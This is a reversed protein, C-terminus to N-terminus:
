GFRAAIATGYADADSGSNNGASDHATGDRVGVARSVHYLGAVHGIWGIGGSRGNAARATVPCASGHRIISISTGDGPAPRTEETWLRADLVGIMGPSSIPNAPCKIKRAYCVCLCWPSQLSM